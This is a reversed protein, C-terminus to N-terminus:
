QMKEKFQTPDFWLEYSPLPRLDSWGMFDEIMTGNYGYKNKLHTVRLARFFHPFQFFGAYDKIYRWYTTRTKPFIQTDVPLNKIYDLIIKILKGEHKVPCVITKFAKRKNKLNRLTVHLWEGLVDSEKSISLPTLGKDVPVYDIKFLMWDPNVVKEFLTNGDKDRKVEKNRKRVAKKLYKNPRKPIVEQVRAGTLYLLACLARTEVHSINVIRQITAAHKIPKGGISMMADRVSTRVGKM